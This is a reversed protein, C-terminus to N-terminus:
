TSIRLLGKGIGSSQQHLKTLGPELTYRGSVLGQGWSAASHSVRIVAQHPCSLVFRTDTWQQCM